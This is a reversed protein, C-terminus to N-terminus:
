GRIKQRKDLDWVSTQNGNEVVLCNGSIYHNNNVPATVYMHVQGKDNRVTIQTGQQQTYYM